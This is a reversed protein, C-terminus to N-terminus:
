ATPSSHTDKDILKLELADHLESSFEDVCQENNAFIVVNKGDRNQSSPYIIGDLKKDGELRFILRFYETVIQTPVYDIHAGDKREIPQSVSEIFNRLFLTEQRLSRNLCDFLSPIVMETTLDLVVLPRNSKFVAIIIKKEEGRNEYTESEATEKDFAGYFMSIGAPSMRNSVLAKNDPPSGLEKALEPNEDRNVIRVRFLRPSLTHILGLRKVISGLAGLINVPNMEDPQKEDYDENEAKLFLYRAKNRVFNCFDAWGHTLTENEELAYPNKRSWKVAKVSDRIDEILEGSEIDVGERDLIEIIDDWIPGFVLYGGERSEYPFGADEIRCYELLVGEIVYQLVDHLSCAGQKHSCYSCAREKDKKKEIFEKIPEDGFCNSCVNKDIDWVMSEEMEMALEKMRGM